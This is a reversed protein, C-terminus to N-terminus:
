LWKLRHNKRDFFPSKKWQWTLKTSHLSEVKQLTKEKKQISKAGPTINKEPEALRKPCNPTPLSSSNVFDCSPLSFNCLDEIMWIVYQPYNLYLANLTTFIFYWHVRFVFVLISFKMPNTSLSRSWKFKPISRGVVLVTVVPMPVNKIIGPIGVTVKVQWSPIWSKWKLQSELMTKWVSLPGNLFLFCFADEALLNSKNWPLKKSDFFSQPPPQVAEASFRPQKKKNSVIQYTKIQHLSPIKEQQGDLEDHFNYSTTSNNTEQNTPQISSHIIQIKM